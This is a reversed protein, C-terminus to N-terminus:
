AQSLQGRVISDGSHAPDGDIPEVSVDVLNYEELDLGDPIVFTGSDGDLVGLSILAGADNRILWVERYTDPRADAGVTVVLRRSGEEDEEVDATGTAGPHDPFPDLVAQAISTPPTPLLAGAGWGVGAVVVLSAALAWLWRGRPRRAAHDRRTRPTADSEGAVEDHAVDRDGEDPSAHGSPTNEDKLGEDSADGRISLNLEEAIGAWVREPPSELKDDALTSRAM